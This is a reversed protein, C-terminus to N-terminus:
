DERQKRERAADIGSAVEHLILMHNGMLYGLLVPGSWSLSTGEIITRVSMTALIGWAAVGLFAGTLSFGFWIFSGAAVLLAGWLSTSMIDRLLIQSASEARGGFWNIVGYAVDAFILFTLWQVRIKDESKWVPMRGHGPLDVGKGKWLVGFSVVVVSSVYKPLRIVDYRFRLSGVPKM